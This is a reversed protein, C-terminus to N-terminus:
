FVSKDFYSFNISSVVDNMGLTRMDPVSTNIVKCSGLNTLWSHGDCVEAWTGGFIRISSVVDNWGTGVYRFDNLDIKNRITLRAGTYNIASWLEICPETPAADCGNGTGGSAGQATVNWTLSSAVDNFQSTRLDPISQAVRMSSGGFEAAAYLTIAAGNFIKVSTIQDNFNGKPTAVLCNFDIPGPIIIRSGTYDLGTWLEVYPEGTAVAKAASTPIMIPGGIELDVPKEWSASDSQAGRASPGSAEQPPLCGQFLFACLVASTFVKMQM